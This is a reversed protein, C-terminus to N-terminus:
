KKARRKKWPPNFDSPKLRRDSSIECVSARWEEPVFDQSMWRHVMGHSIKPVMADAFDRYTRGRLARQLQLSHGLRPPYKRKAPM